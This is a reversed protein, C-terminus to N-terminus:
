LSYIPKNINQWGAIKCIKIASTGKNQIVFLQFNCFSNLNVLEKLTQVWNAYVVVGEM